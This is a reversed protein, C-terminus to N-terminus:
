WGYLSVVMLVGAFAQWMWMLAFSNGASPTPEFGTPAATPAGVGTACFKCDPGANACDFACTGNCAFDCDLSTCTGIVTEGQDACDISVPTPGWGAPCVTCPCFISSGDQRIIESGCACNKAERFEAQNQSELDCTVLMKITNRTNDSALVATELDCRVDTTSVVCVEKTANIDDPRGIDLQLMRQGQEGEVYPANGDNGFLNNITYREANAIVLASGFACLHFLFSRTAIKM